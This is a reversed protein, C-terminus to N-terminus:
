TRARKSHSVEPVEPVAHSAVNGEANDPVLAYRDSPPISYMVVPHSQKMLNQISMKDASLDKIETPVNLDVMGGTGLQGNVGRGWAYFNGSKSVALTHRWGSSFEKLKDGHPMKVEVPKCTDVNHGLGLQGFKNWGWSFLNGEEDAALSHRWGGAMMATRRIQLMELKRPIM